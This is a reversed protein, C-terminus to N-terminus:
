MCLEQWTCKHTKWAAPRSPPPSGKNDDTARCNAKREHRTTHLKLANTWDRWQLTSRPSGVFPVIGSARRVACVSINGGRFRMTSRTAVSKDGDGIPYSPLVPAHKTLRGTARGDKRSPEPPNRQGTGSGEPRYLVAQQRHAVYRHVRCVCTRGDSGIAKTERAGAAISSRVRCKEIAQANVTDAAKM